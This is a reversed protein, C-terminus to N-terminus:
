ADRGREIDALMSDIDGTPFSFASASRIAALKQEVTSELMALRERQEARAEGLLEAADGVGSAKLKRSQKMDSPM